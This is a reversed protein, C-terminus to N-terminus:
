KNKIKSQKEAEAVFAKGEETGREKLAEWISQRIWWMAYPTFKFGRAKNFKDIAHILGIKGEEILEESTLGLGLYRKAVVSVFRMHYQIMREKADSDGAQSKALLELEEESTFFKNEM